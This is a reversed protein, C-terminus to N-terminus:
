ETQSRFFWDNSNASVTTDSSENNINTNSNSLNANEAYYARHLGHGRGRMFRKNVNGQGKYNNHTNQQTYSNTNNQYSNYNRQKYDRGRYNVKNPNNRGRYNRYFGNNSNKGRMHLVQSQNNDSNSRDEDKAGCIAEKLSQYNRAKIITRLEQNRLGCAFTNIAVKENVKTLIKLANDDGEAQALTLDLLLQEITKGFEDISKDYQRARHLESTLATASKKTLLHTRIDKVLDETSNYTKELRLKANQSLRTKVVYNILLKKGNDDLLESYLEIADILQKTVDDTGDMSPLLSAATRLDFKEGMKGLELSNDDIDVNEVIFKLRDILISQSETITRSIEKIYAKVQDVIEPSCPTKNFDVKLSDLESGIRALDVLKQNIVQSNERRQQNDKDINRKFVRIEDYLHRFKDVNKM